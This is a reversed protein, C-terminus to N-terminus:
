GHRSSRTKNVTRFLHLELYHGSASKQKAVSMFRYFGHSCRRAIIDGRPVKDLKIVAPERVRPSSCLLARPM